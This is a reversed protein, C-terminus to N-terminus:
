RIRLNLLVKLASERKALASYSSALEGLGEVLM